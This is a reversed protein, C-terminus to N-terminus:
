DGLGCNLVEITNDREKNEDVVEENLVCISCRVNLFHDLISSSRLEMEDIDRHIGTSIGEFYRSVLMCIYLLHQLM